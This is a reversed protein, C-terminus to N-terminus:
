LFANKKLWRVCLDPWSSVSLDNLALGMGHPGEPYVHLEFPVKERSMAEAFFLSNEVPVLADTATHWLFVPPMKGHVNVELSMKELDEASPNEGLLNKFSAPHGFNRTTLVAYCLIGADPRSSIGDKAPLISEAWQYHVCLTGALHGGASFGLVAIKDPRINWKEANRRVIRVAEAADLMPAPHHNPAVRYDLMFSHLGAQNFRQCIDRGEYTVMKKQYGGGPMVIVAGVPKDTEVTFREIFPQYGDGNDSFPAGDPWLM